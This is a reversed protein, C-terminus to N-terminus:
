RSRSLNTVKRYNSKKLIYKEMDEMMNETSYNEGLEEVTIHFEYYTDGTNEVSSISSSSNNKSDFVKSLIDRLNAINATDSASLFAEPKSPTGDVWAPGTYDIIGGTAYQSIPTNDSWRQVIRNVPIWVQGFGSWWNVGSKDINVLGYYQEGIKTIDLLEEINPDHLKPPKLTLKTTKDKKYAEIISQNNSAIELGTSGIWNQYSTDETDSGGSSEEEKENKTHTNRGVDEARGEAGYYGKAAGTYADWGEYKFMDMETDIGGYNKFLDYYNQYQSKLQNGEAINNAAFANDIKVLLDDMARKAENKVMENQKDDLDELSALAEKVQDYDVDLVIDYSNAKNVAEIYKDIGEHEIEEFKQLIAIKQEELDTTLTKQAAKGQEIKERWTIIFNEQEALTGARFEESHKMMWDLIEEDKLQLLESVKQNSIAYTELELDLQQQLFESRLTLEESIKQTKAEEEEYMRELSTNSKEQLLQDLEDQLEEIEKTYVGSTDRSLLGIRNQLTAIEQDQDQDSQMQKRKNINKQLSSLYKQDEQKIKNYKDQVAKVEDQMDKIIIDRLMQELDIQYQRIENELKQQEILNQKYEQSNSITTDYLDEYATQVENITDWLRQLEQSEEESAGEMQEALKVLESQDQFINGSEDVTLYQGYNQNIYDGFEKLDSSYIDGAQKLLRQQEVLNLIQDTLAESAQESGEALQFDLEFDKQENQLQLIKRQINYYRNMEAIIDKYQQVLDYLRKKEANDEELKQKALNARIQAEAALYYQSTMYYGNAESMLQKYTESEGNRAKEAEAAQQKVFKAANAQNAMNLLYERNGDIGTSVMGGVDGSIQFGNGTAVIQSNKLLEQGTEQLMNNLKDLQSLSISGDLSAGLIDVLSNVEELQSAIDTLAEEATLGTRNFVTGLSSTIQLVEDESFGLDKLKVGLQAISNASKVNTSGLAEMVAQFEKATEPIITRLGNDGEETYKELLADFQNQFASIFAPATEGSSITMRAFAAAIEAGGEEFSNAIEDIKSKNAGLLQNWNDALVEGEADFIQNFVKEVEGSASGLESKIYSIINDTSANGSDDTFLGIMSIANSFVEREEENFGDLQKIFDDAIQERKELIIRSNLGGSALAEIQDDTLELNEVKLLENLYSKNKASFADSSIGTYAYDLVSSIDSNLEKQLDKIKNKNESFTNKLNNLIEEFKNTDGGLSKVLDTLIARTKDFNDENFDEETLSNILQDFNANSNQADSAMAGWIKSTPLDGNFLSLNRIGSDEFAKKFAEEDYGEISLNDLSFQSIANNYADINEKSLKSLESKYKAFNTEATDEAIARKKLKIEEKLQEINIQRLENESSNIYALGDWQDILQNNLEVLRQKEENTLNIKESLGIYEEGLSILNQNEEISVSNEEATKQYAEALRKQNEESGFGYKAEDIAKAIAPGAFSGIANGITAGLMPNGLFAGIIGGATSGITSGAIAGKMEVQSQSQALMNVSSAINLIPGVIGGIKSVVSSIKGTTGVIKGTNQAAQEATQVGKQNNVNSVIPTTTTQKGKKGKKNTKIKASNANLQETTIPQGDAANVVNVRVTPTHQEINEKIKQGITSQGAKGELASFFNSIFKHGSDEAKKQAKDILGSIAGFLQEGGSLFSSLISKISKVFAVTFLAAVVPGQDAVQNFVQLINNIGELVGKVLDSGVLTGVLNEFSSQINNLKTQVSDMTKAFQDASAGASNQAIDILEVTREYNDMMAIFRSQQRSGAAITAIYRQTNRDLTDWKSSLELFVDDLDRFQGTLSDRLQVGVTQLATDVKNVDVLEGDIEVSDNVATKLEQFRAIITKMATGLNEPAERTTEIMQSLFASTTELEMGASAAISATRTLASSLEDTDVASEAALASFVDNVRQADEMELKFGRLAATMRDTAEAFDMGAIRAMKITEETLTMVEATELGQQYYLASTQIAQVTTAGLEQAIDNYSDFSDWLQENSMNTVVAIETFAADLEKIAQYSANIARRFAYFASAAGFFEALREKMQTFKRSQEEMKSTEEAAVRIGEQADEASKGMKELSDSAQDVEKITEKIKTEEFERKAKKAKEYADDARDVSNALENIDNAYNQYDSGGKGQIANFYTAIRELSNALNELRKSTQAAQKELTVLGKQAEELQASIDKTSVEGLSDLEKQYRTRWGRESSTLGGQREKENYQNIKGSLFSRREDLGEVNGIEQRKRLEEELSAVLAKQANINEEIQTKNREQEQIEDKKAQTIRNQINLIENFDKINDALNSAEGKTLGAGMSSSISYLRESLNRQANKFISATEQIKKNIEDLEEKFVSTDLDSFSMNKVLRQMSSSTKTFEDELAKMNKSFREVERTSSFGQNMKIALQEAKRIITDFSKSFAKINTQNLNLKDFRQQLQQTATIIQETNFIGTFYTKKEKELM